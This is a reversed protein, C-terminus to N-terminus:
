LRLNSESLTILALATIKKYYKESLNINIIKTIARM